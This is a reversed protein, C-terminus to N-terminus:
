CPIAHILEQPTVANVNPLLVSAESMCNNGFQMNFLQGEGEGEGGGGRGEGGRGEGGRGEGGRGEGGRGEGGRGEASCFLLTHAFEHAGLWM